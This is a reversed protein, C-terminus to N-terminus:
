LFPVGEAVSAFGPLAGTFPNAGGMGGMAGMGMGGVPNLMGYATMGAGLLSGLPNDYYPTTQSGSVTPANPLINSYLQNVMQAQQYPAMQNFMYKNFENQIQAQQQSQQQQGINNLLGVTGGLQAQGLAPAMGIAQQNLAQQNQLQNAFANAEAQALSNQFTSSNGAGARGFMSSVQPVIANTAAQFQANFAPSGYTIPNNLMNTLNNNAANIAAPGGQTAINTGTDFAQQQAPAFPAVMNGSYYSLPNNKQLNQATNLANLIYPQGQQWPQATQTTTTTSEGAQSMGM